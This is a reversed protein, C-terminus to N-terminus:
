FYQAVLVPLIRLLLNNKCKNLSNEKYDMSLSYYVNYTILVM